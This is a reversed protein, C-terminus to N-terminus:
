CGFYSFWKSNGLMKRAKKVAKAQLDITKIETRTVITAYVCNYGPHESDVETMIMADDPAIVKQMAEFFEYPDLDRGQCPSFDLDDACTCSDFDPYDAHSCSGLDPCGACTRSSQAYECDDAPIYIGYFEGECLLAFKLRGDAMEKSMIQINDDEAKCAAILARFRDEDTVAFYNTTLRSIRNPTQSSM